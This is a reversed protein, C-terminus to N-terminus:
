PAPAKAASKAPPRAPEQDEDEDEDAIADAEDAIDVGLDAKPISIGLNLDEDDGGIDDLDEDEDLNDEGEEDDDYSAEKIKAEAGRKARPRKVTVQPPP